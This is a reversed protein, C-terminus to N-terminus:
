FQYKKKLSKKICKILKDVSGKCHRYICDFNQNYKNFVDSIEEFMSKEGKLNNRIFMDFQDRDIHENLNSIVNTISTPACDDDKVHEIGQFNSFGIDKL